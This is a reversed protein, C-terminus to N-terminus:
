WYFRYNVSCTGYYMYDSVQAAEKLERTKLNFIIQYTCRVMEWYLLESIDLWEPINM